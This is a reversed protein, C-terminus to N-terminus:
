VNWIKFKKALAHIASSILRGRLDEECTRLLFEGKQLTTTLLHVDSNPDMGLKIRKKNNMLSM